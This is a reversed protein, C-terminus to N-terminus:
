RAGRSASEPAAPAPAQARRAADALARAAQAADQASAPVEGEIQWGGLGRVQLKRAAPDAQGREDPGQEDVSAIVAFPEGGALRWELQDGILGGFSVATRPGTIEVHTAWASFSVEVQFGRLAPCRLVPDSGDEAPVATECQKSPYLPTRESTFGASPAGSPSAPPQPAPGPSRACGSASLAALAALAVHALPVALRHLMTMGIM